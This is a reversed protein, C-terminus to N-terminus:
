LIEWWWQRTSRQSPVFFLMLCERLDVRLYAFVDSDILATM